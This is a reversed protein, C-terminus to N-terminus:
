WASAVLWEGNILQLNSIMEGQSTHITVSGDNDGEEVRFGSVLEAPASERLNRLRTFNIQSGFSRTSMAKAHELDNAAVASIFKQFVSAAMHAPEDSGESASGSASSGGMIQAIEIQTKIEAKASQEQLRALEHQKYVLRDADIEARRKEVAAVYIETNRILKEKSQELDRIIAECGPKNRLEEILSEVGELEAAAKEIVGNAHEIQGKSVMDLYKSNLEGSLTDVRFAVESFNVRPGFFQFAYMVCPFLFLLLIAYKLISSM